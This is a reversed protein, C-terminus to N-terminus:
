DDWVFVTALDVAMGPLAAVDLSIGAFILLGAGNEETWADCSFSEGGVYYELTAAPAANLGDIRITTGASSLGIESSMGPAQEDGCPTAQEMLIEVPLGQTDNEADRAILLAGAVSSTADRRVTLPGNCLGPHPQGAQEVSGGAAQCDAGDFCAGGPCSPDDGCQDGAATGGECRGVEGVRHDQSIRLGAAFGGACAIIGAHVVPLAGPVPRLCLAAPQDPIDIAIFQSAGTVDVFALGTESDPEGAALEIFGSFGPLTSAVADPGLVALLPSSAAEISFHRVGLGPTPTPSASLSATPSPTAPCGSFSHEVATILEVVTVVGSGDADAACCLKISEPHLAVNVANILEPLGVEGDGNCDGPCEAALLPACTFALLVLAASLRLM